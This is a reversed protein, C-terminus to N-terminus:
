NFYHRTLELANSEMLKNGYEELVDQSVDSKEGYELAVAREEDVTNVVMEEEFQIIAMYYKKKYHYLHSMGNELYCQNSLAIVDEFIDFVLVFEENSDEEDDQGDEHDKGYYKELKKQRSFEEFENEGFDMHHNHSGFFDEKFTAGKSIFLELGNKNPMVQFTVADSEQFEEEVDVEELISYFFSEIQKQNGLLDLFTIGRKELDSNEILVRITNENIHEMEVSMCRMEAVRHPTDKWRNM